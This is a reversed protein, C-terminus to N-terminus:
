CAYKAKKKPSKQNSPAATEAGSPYGPLTYDPPGSKIPFVSGRGSPQNGSLPMSSDATSHRIDRVASGNGSDIHADYDTPNVHPLDVPAIWHQDKAQENEVHPKM